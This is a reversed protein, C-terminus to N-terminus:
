RDQFGLHSLDGDVWDSLSMHETDKPRVGTGKLPKVPPPAKSKQVPKGNSILASIRGVERAAQVTGMKSLDIAKQVNTSMYEIIKPGNDDTWIATILDESVPVQAKQLENVLHNFKDDFDEIGSKEVNQAFTRELERQNNIIEDAAGRQEFESLRQQAKWDALEEFYQDMATEHEDITEYDDLNPKKPREPGKTEYKKIKAEAEALKREKEEVASKLRHKDASLKSLRKKLGESLGSTEDEISPEPTEVLDAEETEEVETPEEEPSPDSNVYDDVTKEDQEESM